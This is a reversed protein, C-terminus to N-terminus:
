EGYWSRILNFNRNYWDRAYNLKDVTGIDLVESQTPVASIPMNSSIMLPIIAKDFNMVEQTILPLVSAKQIVYAGTNLYMGPGYQTHPHPRAIWEVINGSEDVRAMDGNQPLDSRKLLLTIHPNSDRHKNILDSLDFTHLQDGYLLIFTDSLKDAAKKIAGATDLIGDSEDSYEISVGFNSGDKFYNRIVDPLYHLNIVFRSFGQNRLGKIAHELLPIGPAVEVMVKPTTDTIPKLRTGLGAGLIFVSIDKRDM